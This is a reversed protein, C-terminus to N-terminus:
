VTTPTWQVTALQHAHGKGREAPQRLTQCFTKDYSARFLKARWGIFSLLQPKNKLILRTLWDAIRDAL